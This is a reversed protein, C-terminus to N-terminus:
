EDTKHREIYHNLYWRAKEVEQLPKDKKGLRGLYKLANGIDVADIGVLDETYADIVDIVEMGNKLQYHQPHEVLDSKGNGYIMNYLYEKNTSDVKSCEEYHKCFPCGGREIMQRDCYEDVTRGMDEETM